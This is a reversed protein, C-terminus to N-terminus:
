VVIARAVLAFVRNGVCFAVPRFRIQVSFKSSRKPSTAGVRPRNQGSLETRAPSSRTAREVVAFAVHESPPLGVVPPNAGVLVATRRPPWQAPFTTYECCAIGRVAIPAHSPALSAFGRRIRVEPRGAADTRAEKRANVTVPHARILLPELAAASAAKKIKFRIIAAFPRAVIDADKAAESWLALAM